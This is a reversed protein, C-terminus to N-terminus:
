TSVRHSKAKSRGIYGAYNLWRSYIKRREEREEDRRPENIWIRGYFGMFFPPNVIFDGM